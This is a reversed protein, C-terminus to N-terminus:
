APLSLGAAALLRRKVAKDDCRSMAVASTLGSLSERGVIARGGYVLRFYGAEADVVEVAIGRRRAENTIIRAYPNLGEDPDLGIYLKENISSRTKVTFAPIRRFGLKEYLAIAEKNDHVVSLDM